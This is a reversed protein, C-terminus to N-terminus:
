NNSFEHCFAFFHSQYVFKYCRVQRGCYGSEFVFGESKANLFGTGGVKLSLTAYLFTKMELVILGSNLTKVKEQENAPLFLFFCLKLPSLPHNRVPLQLLM